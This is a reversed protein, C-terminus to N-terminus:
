FLGTQGAPPAPPGSEGEPAGGDLVRRVERIDRWTLSKPGGPARTDNRLLYAPHFMPMLLAQWLGGRQRYPHWVGRLRTIGQRTGLLYGTPTNGLTLILQPRLLRLQAELWLGTCTETEDAEPTRNAPPRCKVINTIYVDDRSLQVAELIKDLLQGGRGVFPRGLRDEDAGPGEGVILLRAEPNGDSVVVQTCGRRLKCASCARNRQTLEELAAVDVGTLEGTM